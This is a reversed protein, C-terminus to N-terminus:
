LLYLNVDLSHTSQATVPLFSTNFMICTEKRFCEWRQVNIWTCLFFTHLTNTFGHTQRDYTNTTLLHPTFLLAGFLKLFLFIWRCWCCHPWWSVRLRRQSPPCVGYLCVIGSFRKSTPLCNHLPKPLITNGTRPHKQLACAGPSKTFCEGPNPRNASCSHFVILSSDARSASIKSRRSTPSILAPTRTHLRTKILSFLQHFPCDWGFIDKEAETNTNRSWANPLYRQLKKGEVEWRGRDM